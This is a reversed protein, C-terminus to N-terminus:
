QRTTATGGIDPTLAEKKKTVAAVGRRIRTFAAKEGLHHCMMAASLIMAIPNAIGKGAIDPASGHVAEFVAAHRGYNAGPVLGLGGVLGAALDSVIDGYLNELLLVDFDWARRVLKMCLADVLVEDYALKGEWHKSSERCCDLFLGDALKMINAKHVATIRKRSHRRAYAFAFESIRTCARETIVKISTVVGPVIEQELGSYLDETNERVVVLDIPGHKTELGPLSQVPRLNAFLDFHKRLAVNVSTFGTGVPTTVPGKLCVQCRDIAQLLSEPLPSGQTGLAEVGAAHREWEIEAGAAELIRVVAGTIEPGIGDGPVLVVTQM